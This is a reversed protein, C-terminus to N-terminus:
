AQNAPRALHDIVAHADAGGPVRALDDLSIVGVPARKENLVVLRRVLFREMLGRAAALSDEPSCSVVEPTRLHAVRTTKPDLGAAVGRVVLDRDTIVGIVKGSEVIPLFGVSADRMREGAAQLTATSSLEEVFKHMVDKVIM